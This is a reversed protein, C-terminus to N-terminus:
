AMVLAYIQIHVLDQKVHDKLQEYYNLISQTNTNLKEYLRLFSKKMLYLNLSPITGRYNFPIVSSKYDDIPPEIGERPEM